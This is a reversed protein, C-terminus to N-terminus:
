ETVGRFPAADILIGTSHLGAVTHFVSVLCESLEDARDANADSASAFCLLSVRKLKHAFLGLMSSILEFVDETFNPLFGSFLM